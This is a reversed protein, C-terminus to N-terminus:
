QKIGATTDTGAALLEVWFCSGAGPSSEVGVCGGMREAGKRVIALGIGTGSAASHDVLKEFPQFIRELHEPEIGVGNDRV